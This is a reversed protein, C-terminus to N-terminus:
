GYAGVAHAGARIGHVTYIQKFQPPSYKFTGDMYWNQTNELFRLSRQTAYILMRDNRGNDYQLFREGNSTTTYAPPLVFLTDNDLPLPPTPFAIARQRNINRAMCTVSPMRASTGDDLNMVANAIINQPREGTTTARRRVESAVRRIEAKEPDAAHVHQNLRGFLQGNQTKIRANCHRTKRQTCEWCIVNDVLLKQKTYTYNEFILMDKNKESKIFEM